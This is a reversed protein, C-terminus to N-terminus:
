GLGKGWVPNHLTAVAAQQLTTPRACMLMQETRHAGAAASGNVAVRWEQALGKDHVCM